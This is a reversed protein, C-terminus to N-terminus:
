TFHCHPGHCMHLFPSMHLMFGHAPIGVVRMEQSAANKHMKVWAYKQLILFSGTLFKEM